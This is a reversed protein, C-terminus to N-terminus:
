ATGPAGSRRASAILGTCGDPHLEDPLVHRVRETIREAVEHIQNLVEDSFPANEIPTATLKELM